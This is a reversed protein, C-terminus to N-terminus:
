SAPPFINIVPNWQRIRRGALVGEQHFPDQDMLEVADHYGDHEGLQLLILASGHGDNYPGSAVLKGQDKLSGLFERHAPRLRVIDQDGDAYTYHVAFYNTM